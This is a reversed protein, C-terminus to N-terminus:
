AFYRLSNSNTLQDKYPLPNVPAPYGNIANYASGMNYGIERGLNIFEQPLLGGKRSRSRKGKKNKIRYRKTGGNVIMATQPDVHYKNYALYNRDGGVGNVGPWNDIPPNWSKGVIPGPMPSAPKYNIGGHLKKKSNKKALSYKPKNKRTKKGKISYKKSKSKVM